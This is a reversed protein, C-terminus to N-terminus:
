HFYLSSGTAGVARAGAAYLRTERTSERAHSGSHSFVDASAPAAGACSSDCLAARPGLGSRFGVADSRSYVYETIGHATPLALRYVVVTVSM